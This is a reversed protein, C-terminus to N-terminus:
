RPASPSYPVKNQHDLNLSLDVFKETTVSTDGCVTCLLKSQVSGTFLQLCVTPHSFIHLADLLLLDSVETLDEHEAYPTVTARIQCDMSNLFAILFEHADQQTYGALYDVFSWMAYLLHSPIVVPEDDM